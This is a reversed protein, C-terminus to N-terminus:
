RKFTVGVYCIVIHSLSNPSLKICFHNLRLFNSTRMERKETEASLVERSVTTEMWRPRGSTARRDRDPADDAVHLFFAAGNNPANNCWCSSCFTPEEETHSRSVNDMCVTRYALQEQVALWRETLRRHTLSRRQSRVQGTATWNSACRAVVPANVVRQQFVFHTGHYCGM